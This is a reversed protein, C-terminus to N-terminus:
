KLRAVDPPAGAALAAAVSDMLDENTRLAVNVNSVCPTEQAFQEHLPALADADAQRGPIWVELTVHSGPACPAGAADPAAGGGATSRCAAALQAALSASAGRIFARRTVGM